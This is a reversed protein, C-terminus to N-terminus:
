DKQIEIYRKMVHESQLLVYVNHIYIYPQLMSYM